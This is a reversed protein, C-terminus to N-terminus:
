ITVSGIEIQNWYDTGIKVTYDDKVMKSYDKNFQKERASQIAEKVAKDYGETSTNDVLKVIYYGTTVKILDTIEGPKMNKIKTRYEETLFDIGSALMKKTSYEIGSTDGSKLLTSFEKTTKAKKLLAEMSKKVNAKEADSLDVTKKESNTKQTTGYYYELDFQKNDAQSVTKKVAEEDISYSAEKKEQYKNALTEKELATRFSAEDLGNMARQYDNMKDRSNKVKTEIEAKESDSLILGDKQAAQYLVERKTVAQLIKERAEERGTTGDDNVQLDWYNKGYMQQYLSNMNDYQQEKVYIEYMMDKKYLKEGNVSLIAKPRFQEFCIAGIVLALFAVAIVVIRNRTKKTVGAKIKEKKKASIKKSNNM